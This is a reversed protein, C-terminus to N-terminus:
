SNYQGYHSRHRNEDSQVKKDVINELVYAFMHVVFLIHSFTVNLEAYKRKRKNVGNQQNQGPFVDAFYGVILQYYPNQYYKAYNYAIKNDVEYLSGHASHSVARHVVALLVPEFVKRTPVDDVAFAIEYGHRVAHFDAVAALRERRSVSVARSNNISQYAQGVKQFFPVFFPDFGNDIRTRRDKRSYHRYATDHYSRMKHAVNEEASRQGEEGTHKETFYEYEAKGM